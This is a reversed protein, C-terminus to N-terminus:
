KNEKKKDVEKKNDAEIKDEDELEGISKIYEELTINRVFKSTAKFLDRLCSLCAYDDSKVNDKITMLHLIFPYCYKNENCSCCHVKKRYKHIDM